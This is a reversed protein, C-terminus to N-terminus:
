SVRELAAVADNAYEASAADIAEVSIEYVPSGPDEECSTIAADLQEHAEGFAEGKDGERWRDSKGDMHAEVADRAATLAADLAMLIEAREATLLLIRESYLVELDARLSEAGEDVIRNQDELKAILDTIKAVHEDRQKTNM